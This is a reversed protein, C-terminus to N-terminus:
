IKLTGVVKGIYATHIGPKFNAYFRKPVEDKFRAPDIPASYMIKCEIVSTAEAYYPTGNETYLITLGCEKAKDMDRGSKTGMIRLVKQDDFTMVTFYEAREMFEYTYRGPAVYVTVIPQNWLTGLDGWGIAMANSKERDGACLVLGGPRHFFTYPDMSGTLEALTCPTLGADPSAVASAAKPAKAEASLASLSAVLFSM